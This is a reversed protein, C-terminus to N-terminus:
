EIGKMGRNQQAITYLITKIQFPKLDPYAEM